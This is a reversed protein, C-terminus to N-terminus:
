SFLRQTQPLLKFTTNGMGLGVVELSICVLESTSLIHMDNINGETLLANLESLLPNHSVLLVNQSRVNKGLFDIVTSARVEPVLLETTTLSIVSSLQQVFLDATQNARVYPSVFCQELPLHRAAFQKAVYEVDARGKNTLQRASDTHARAEAEGHRLLYLNM